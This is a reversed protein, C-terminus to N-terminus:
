RPARQHKQLLWGKLDEPMKDLRHSMGASDIIFCRPSAGAAKEFHKCSRCLRIERRGSPAAHAMKEAWIVCGSRTREIADNGTQVAIEDAFHNCDRCYTGAPGGGSFDAMGPVAVQQDDGLPKLRIHQGAGRRPPQSLWEGSLLDGQLGNSKKSDTSSTMADEM